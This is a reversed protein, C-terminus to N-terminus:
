CWEQGRVKLRKATMIKKGKNQQSTMDLNLIKNELCKGQEKSISHNSFKKSNDTIRKGPPFRKHHITVM